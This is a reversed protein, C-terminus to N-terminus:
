PAIATSRTALGFSHYVAHDLTNGRGECDEGKKPGEQAARTPGRGPQFGGVAAALGLEEQALGLPMEEIPM